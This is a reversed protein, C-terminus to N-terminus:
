DSVATWPAPVAVVDPREPLWTAAALAAGPLPSGEPHVILLPADPAERRRTDEAVPLLDVDVGSTCAVIVPSGDARTGVALAPHPDRLNPRQVTTEVPRVDSLGVVDPDREIAVRVWRERCLDRVPHPPAGPHRIRDVIDLVAGLSDAASLEARVMAGVERDFRGVGTELRYGDDHHEVRAVELGLREGRVIGQETVVECGSAVLLEVLTEVGEPAPLVSPEPAVEVADWEEGPAVAWLQVRGGFWGLRRALDGALGADVDSDVLVEASAVGARAAWLLVGGASRASPEDLLVWSRDDERLTAGAPFTGAERRAEGERTAVIADLKAALLRARREPDISTPDAV